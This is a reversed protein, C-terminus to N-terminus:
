LQALSRWHSSDRCRYIVLGSTVTVWFMSSAVHQEQQCMIVTDEQIFPRPPRRLQRPPPGPPHGLVPPLRRLRLLLLHLRLAMRFWLCCSFVSVPRLITVLTSQGLLPYELHSPVLNMHLESSKQIGKAAFATTIFDEKRYFRIGVKIRDWGRGLTVADWGQHQHLLHLAQQRRELRVQEQGAGALWLHTNRSASWDCSVQVLCEYESEPLLGSILYSRALLMTVMMMMVMRVLAKVFYSVIFFQRKFVTLLHFQSESPFTM